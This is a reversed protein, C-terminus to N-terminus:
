KMKYKGTSDMVRFTFFTEKYEQSVPIRVYKNIYQGLSNYINVVFSDGNGDKVECQSINLQHCYTVSFRSEKM